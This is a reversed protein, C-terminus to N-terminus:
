QDHRCKGSFSILQYPFYLGAGTSDIAGQLEAAPATSPFRSTINRRLSSPSPDLRHPCVVPGDVATRAAEGFAVEVGEGM